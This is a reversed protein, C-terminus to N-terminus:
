DGDIETASARGWLEAALLEPVASEVLARVLPDDLAREPLPVNVDAEAIDAGVAVVRGGRARIVAVAEADAPSGAFLLVPDGPVLTYLGVHLWDGTDWASAQLRPAERLMLAAQEAAGARLGDGLVHIPRGGDLVDAARTLWADRGALLSRLADPAAALSRRLAEGDGDDALAALAAVTARFTMTAIGSTEGHLAALPIVADGAEALAADGRATLALVFSSGRHREAAAVVEATRGSASIAVVLTDTGGPSGGSASALEAHADLGRSRLRAAADLAAFRSSGMGTLRWSPRALAGLPVERIAVAQARIVAALEDPAAEIDELLSQARDGATV